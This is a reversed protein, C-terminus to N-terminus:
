GATNDKVFRGSVVLAVVTAFGYGVVTGFNSTVIAAFQPSALTTVVLALSYKWADIAVRKAIPALDDFFLKFSPSGSFRFAMFDGEAINPLSGSGRRLYVSGARDKLRM